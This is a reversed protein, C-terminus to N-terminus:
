VSTTRATTPRGPVARQTDFDCATLWGPSLWEPRGAMPAGPEGIRNSDYALLRWAVTEDLKASRL